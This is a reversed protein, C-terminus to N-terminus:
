MMLMEDDDEEDQDLENENDAKQVATKRRASHGNRAMESEPVLWESFDIENSTSATKPVAVEANNHISESAANVQGVWAEVQTFNDRKVNPIMDSGRGGGQPQTIEIVGPECDKDKQRLANRIGDGIALFVDVDNEQEYLCNLLRAIKLSWADLTRNPLLASLTNFAGEGSPHGWELNNQTLDMGKM